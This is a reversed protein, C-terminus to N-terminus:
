EWLHWEKFGTVTSLLPTSPGLTRPAFRVVVFGNHTEIIKLILDLFLFFQDRM